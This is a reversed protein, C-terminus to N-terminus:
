IVGKLFYTTHLTLRQAYAVVQDRTVQHIAEKYAEPTLSMGSLIGSGYYGEIASPSDHVGSLGSIVGKKAAQFLDEPFEGKRCVELQEMIQARVVDYKDCYIGASVTLIGKSGHYSSSIDYCLSLKERINMFLLNTMGGGFLANFVQMAGFGEDRITVPALFGMALKGQTIEMTETHDGPRGPHCPTQPPLAIPTRDLKAFLPALLAAIRTPEADGVYFIEVPSEKLVKQYHTYASQPTIKRVASVTGVRPLGYSDNACLKKLLQSNAYARKDNRQSEIASILNRKEGSIFDKVFCGDELVPELLLQGLFAIAPELIQDGDMAYRDSIFRIALGTGQYDGVRRSLCSVAAGYLDDLKLTISRLDPASQCGRILVAPILANMSSEERSMPRLFQLSLLSQKFRNDPFCRLTVGPQLQFTQIM